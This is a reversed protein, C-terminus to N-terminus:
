SGWEITTHIHYMTCDELIGFTLEWLHINLISMWGVEQLLDNRLRVQRSIRQCKAAAEDVLNDSGVNPFFETM